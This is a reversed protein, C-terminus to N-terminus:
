SASPLDYSATLLSTDPQHHSVPDCVLRKKASDTPVEKNNKKIINWMQTAIFTPRRHIIYLLKVDNRCYATGVMVDAAVAM